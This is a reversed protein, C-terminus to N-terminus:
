HCNLLLCIKTPMIDSEQNETQIGGGSTALLVVLIIKVIDM